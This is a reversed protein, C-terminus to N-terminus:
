GHTKILGRVLKKTTESVAARRAPPSSAALVM